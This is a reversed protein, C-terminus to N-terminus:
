IDIYIDIEGRQEATQNSDCCSRTCGSLKPFSFPQFWIYETITPFVHVSYPPSFWVPVGRHDTSGQWFRRKYGKLYGEVSNWSHLFPAKLQHTKQKTHPTPPFICVKAWLAHKTELHSLWLWFDLVRREKAWFFWCCVADWIDFLTPPQQPRCKERKSQSKSHGFWLGALWVPENPNKGGFVYQFTLCAFMGIM